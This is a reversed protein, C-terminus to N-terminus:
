VFYASGLVYRNPSLNLYTLRFDYWMISVLLNLLVNGANEDLDQLQVVASFNVMAMGGAESILVRSNYQVLRDLVVCNDEDSCDFCDCKGNCRVTMDVAEGNVCNFMHPAANLNLQM